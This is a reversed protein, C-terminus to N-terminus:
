CINILYVDAVAMLIRSNASIQTLMRNCSMKQGMSHMQQTFVGNRLCFTFRNNTQFVNNLFVFHGKLVESFIENLFTLGNVILM